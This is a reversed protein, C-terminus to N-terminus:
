KQMLLKKLLPTMIMELQNEFPTDNIMYTWTASPGKLGEKELDMGGAKIEIRGLTEIIEQDIRSQLDQFIISVKEHFENLPIKGGLQVLHIGERIQAAEELFDAWMQDIKHLTVHKEAKKLVTEGLDNALQRYREPFATQFLCPIEQGLLINQRRKHIIQRQHEIIWSYKWLNRRIEFNQAEIIKQANRIERNVLPDAIPQEQNDRRYKGPLLKHIGYRVILEDELSIFFRSSGPDGQRGARGRLQEDIRASEFHNVGIVYLGGLAKVQEYNKEALGGLRIDTGRGAMNTSITIAGLAGAQAIIEAELEDNKANLLQYPLKNQDLLNALQESEEISGTGILIPRRAAHIGCIEQILAKMKAAKHTFILDPEDKRICPRNPPIIAVDLNYFEKFEDAAALATGTMGAIKPYSNLFHQTTISGLIRGCMHHRLGEKAEVAEQLGDPWHRNEVIRGTFEDVLEVRRDRIIYDVDRQLLVEAHLANNLLTLLIINKPAFLNGCKLATETRTIGQETLNVNRRNEDISYDTDPHLSKALESLTTLQYEEAPRNGAIVLPIRGEDILISDAEDVIAFHFPRQLLDAPDYCLFSRLHDFGAEKATVYTVDCSYTKQREAATTGSQIYGASLGLFRYISGMWGADRKALYDNFTLIHVGQGTLANLYAPLVAALTKGEGTLMEAIKGHHLAIGALIQVDYPRLGLLRSSVERVLAYSQVLLQELPVGALAQQKLRASQTQLLDPPCHKLDIKNIENMIGQYSGLDTQLPTRNFDFLQQLKAITKLM